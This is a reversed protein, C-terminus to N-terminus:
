VAGVVGHSATISNTFDEFAQERLVRRALSHAQDLSFGDLSEVGDHRRSVADKTRQRIDAEAVRPEGFVMVHIAKNIDKVEEVELDDRGLERILANLALEPDPPSRRLPPPPGVQQLLQQIEDQHTNLADCVTCLKRHVCVCV